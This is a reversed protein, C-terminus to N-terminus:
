SIPKKNIYIMLLLMRSKSGFVPATCPGKVLYWVPEGVIAIAGILIRLLILNKYDM